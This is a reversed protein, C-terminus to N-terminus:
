GPDFDVRIPLIRAITLQMVCRDPCRLLHVVKECVASQVNGMRGHISM